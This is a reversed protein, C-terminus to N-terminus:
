LRAAAADSAIQAKLAAIDPFTTEPRIFRLFDVDMIDGAEAVAETPESLLHVELTNCKWAHERMTPAVGWNAVGRVGNAEVVYVGSPLNLRLEDIALNITPFGIERGLGKGSEIRGAVRWPRGLMARADEMAACEIASRIRSSSIREGKFAAFPMVKVEYGLSELLAPTGRNGKGFRWNGGCYIRKETLFMRAFDEPETDAFERTFDLAVVREVGCSRIMAERERFPMILRPARDPALLSLPHERFTIAVRADTLIRRHGLHVGDFFGIAIGQRSSNHM